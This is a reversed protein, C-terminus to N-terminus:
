KLGAESLNLYIAALLVFFHTFLYILAGFFLRNSVPAHFLELQSNKETRLRNKVNCPPEAYRHCQYNLRVRISQLICRCDQTDQVWKYRSGHNDIFTEM